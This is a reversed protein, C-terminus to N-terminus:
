LIDSLGMLEPWQNDIVQFRTTEIYFGNLIDDRLVYEVDDRTVILYPYPLQDTGHVQDPGQVICPCKIGGGPFNVCCKM